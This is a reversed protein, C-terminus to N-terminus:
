EQYVGVQYTGLGKESRVMLRFSGTQEPRILCFADSDTAVDQIVLNHNEDYVFLDFDIEPRDPDVEVYISYTEGGRLTVQYDASEGANLVGSGVVTM